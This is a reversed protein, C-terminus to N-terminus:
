DRIPSKPMRHILSGEGSTDGGYGAIESLLDKEIELEHAREQASASSRRLIQTLRECVKIEVDMQLTREQRKVALERLVVAQERRKHVNEKDCLNYKALYTYAQAAIFCVGEILAMIIVVVGLLFVTVIAVFVIGMTADQCFLDSTADTGDCVFLSSATFVPNYM